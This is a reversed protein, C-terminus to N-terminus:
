DTNKIYIRTNDDPDSFKSDSILIESSVGDLSRLIVKGDTLPNGEYLSYKKRDTWGETIFCCLGDEYFEYSYQNYENKKQPASYSAILKFKGNEYSASKDAYISSGSILYYENLLVGWDRGSFTVNSATGNLVVGEYTGWRDSYDSSYMVVNGTYFNFSYDYDTDTHVYKRLLTPPNTQENYFLNENVVFCGDKITLTLGDAKVQGDEFFNGEYECRRNYYDTTYTFINTSEITFYYESNGIYVFKGLPKSDKTRYLRGNYLVCDNSVQMTMEHPEIGNYLNITVKGDEFFSGTYTAGVTEMEDYWNKSTLTIIRDNEVTLCSLPDDVFYYTKLSKSPAKKTDRLVFSNGIIIGDYLEFDIESGQFTASIPGNKTYDGSYKMAYSLSQRSTNVTFRFYKSNLIEITCKGDGYSGTFTKLPTRKQSETSELGLGNFDLIGDFVEVTMSVKGDTMTVKGNVNPNGTYTLNEVSDDFTIILKGGPLFNLSGVSNGNKLTFEIAFASTCFLILFFLVLNKKFNM